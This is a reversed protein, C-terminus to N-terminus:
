NRFKPIHWRVGMLFGFNSLKSATRSKRTYELGAGGRLQMNIEFHNAIVLGVGASLYARM